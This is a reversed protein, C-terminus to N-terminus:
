KIINSKLNEPPKPANLQIGSLSYVHIIPLSVGEARGQAVFIRQNKPDYAAGTIVGYENAFPLDLSWTAYPKIQWPKMVGSKVAAFDVANYAWVYYKYPYSHYGKATDIPNYCYATGGTVGNLECHHAVTNYIEGPTVCTFALTKDSVGQGYCQPGTGHTGFFLISQSGEPFVVGRIRDASTFYDNIQWTDVMPNSLTYYVLPFTPFPETVGVSNPEFSFVGPGQSTRASISLAANGTLASGGLPARWNLPIWTMYGDYYGSKLSDSPAAQYIRSVEGTASLNLSSKNFHTLVSSLNSDYVDFVTGILNNGNILLGGINIDQGTHLAGGADIYKFNGETIEYLNQVVQATSLDSLNTSNVINPVSIEGIRQQKLGTSTHGAIFLSNSSAHYTLAWGGAQLGYGNPDGMVGSPVRFAGVYLMNSKQLLVDACVLSSSCVIIILLMLVRSM